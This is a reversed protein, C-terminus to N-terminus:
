TPSAPVPGAPARRLLVVLVLGSLMAAGTWSVATTLFLPELRVDSSAGPLAGPWGASLVALGVVAGLGPTPAWWLGGRLYRWLLLAQGLGMVTAGYITWAVLLDGILEPHPFLVDALAAAPIWGFAISLLLGAVAAVLSVAAWIDARAGPVIRALAIGQAVGIGGWYLLAAGALIAPWLAPAGPMLLGVATPVTLAALLLGGLAGLVTAAVWGLWLWGGPRPAPVPRLV